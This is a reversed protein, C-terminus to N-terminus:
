SLKKQVRKCVGVEGELVINAVMSWLDDVCLVVLVIPPRKWWCRCQREKVKQWPGAVAM